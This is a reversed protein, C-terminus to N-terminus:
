MTPATTGAKSQIQGAMLGCLGAQFYIVHEFYAISHKWLVCYKTIQMYFSVQSVLHNNLLPPRLFVTHYVHPKCYHVVVLKDHEGQM